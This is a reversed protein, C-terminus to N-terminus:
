HDIDANTKIDKHRIVTGQSVYPVLEAINKAHDAIRELRRVVNVLAIAEDANSLDQHILKVVSKNINKQLRGM